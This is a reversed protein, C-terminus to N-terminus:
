PSDYWGFFAYAGFFLAYFLALVYLTEALTWQPDPENFPSARRESLILLGSSVALACLILLHALGRDKADLVTSLAGAAATSLALWAIEAAVSCWFLAKIM